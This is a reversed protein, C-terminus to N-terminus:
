LDGDKAAERMQTVQERLDAMSGADRKSDVHGYMLGMRHNSRLPEENRDLFDWYLANFPCADAGTDSDPDYVCGECYDSMDDVYNASSVYPKSAFVGHGYQGMEVVNPTTVWHYADVYTAHFWENLEAPEVGWLTAFNALIMLRQIHHSYGHERVEGVTEALCNMETEGTWYFDPLSHTAELQNATALEPMAHRYVHRMFERWGLLQRICGEASPLDVDERRHYADEVAEIVELPHLLGINVSSGLLAHAMAWDDTRMADQYPGFEPLRHEVFHNLHECAQRRTVPWVFGEQDGWTDFSEAVWDATERTLDDHDPTPVPPAEWSDPPYERNQDDYNWEGGVPDGDDMLVGSERRMWRYFDEHRFQDDNGAWEDFAERTSVFLENEVVRLDGGAAAVLEEFREPSGDSPSRMTVLTTEPNAAFFDEFADGFSEAQLYTVDYGDERLRDRFQRMAAFVLTLKHHHYPMRRAFDHAEVLLVRSGEPARALPGCQETLQTGLVWPVEGDDLSYTPPTGVTPQRM